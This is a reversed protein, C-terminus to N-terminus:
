SLFFPSFFLSRASFRNWACHCTFFFDINVFLSMVSLGCSAEGAADNVGCGSAKMESFPVVTVAGGLGCYVRTWEVAGELCVCVRQQCFFYEPFRQGKRGQAKKGESIGSDLVGFPNKKKKETIKLWGTGRGGRGGRAGLSGQGTRDQGTSQKNMRRVGSKGEM